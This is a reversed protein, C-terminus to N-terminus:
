LQTQFIFKLCFIKVIKTKINNENKYRLIEFLNKIGTKKYLYGYKIYNKVEPLIKKKDIRKLVEKEYKKTKETLYEM